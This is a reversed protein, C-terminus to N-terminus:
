ALNYNCVGELVIDLLEQATDLQEETFHQKDNFTQQAEKFALLNQLDKGNFQISVEKSSIFQSGLDASCRSLSKLTEM